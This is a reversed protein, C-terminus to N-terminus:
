TEMVHEVDATLCGAVHTSIERCELCFKVRHTRGHEVESSVTIVGAEERVSSVRLDDKEIEVFANAMGTKVSPSELDDETLNETSCRVGWLDFVNV